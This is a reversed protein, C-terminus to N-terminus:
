DALGLVPAVPKLAEIIFEIHEDLGEGLEEAGQTIDDRSISRAFDKDSHDDRADVRGVPLHPCACHAERLDDRVLVSRAHYGADSLANGCRSYTLADPQVFRVKAARVPRRSLVRNLRCLM